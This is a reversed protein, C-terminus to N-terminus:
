PSSKVYEERHTYLLSLNDKLVNLSPAAGPFVTCTDNQWLINLWMLHKSKIFPFPRGITFSVGFM